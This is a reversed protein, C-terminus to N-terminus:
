QLVSWLTMKDQYVRRSKSLDAETKRREDTIHNEYKERQQDFMQLVQQARGHKGWLDVVCARSSVQSATPQRLSQTECIDM